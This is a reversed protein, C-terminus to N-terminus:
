VYDFGAADVSDLTIRLKSRLLDAHQYDPLDITYTCTHGVPLKSPDSTSQITIKREFGGRPISCQSTVLRLFRRLDTQSMTRIATTVHGPTPSSGFGAFQLQSIITLPDITDPGNLLFMLESASFRGFHVNLQEVSRFGDRIEKLQMQRSTVLRDQIYLEVYEHKNEDTVCINAGDKKLSGFDLFLTEEVHPMALINRLSHAETRDFMELDRLNPKLGLIFKFLSPAFRCPLTRADILTKLLMRGIARFTTADKCDPSPLYTPGSAPADDASACQFMNSKSDVIRLFFETFLDTVLGGNDQGKFDTYEVKIKRFLEPKSLSTIRGVVGEVIMDRRFKFQLPEGPRVLDRTGNIQQLHGTWEDLKAQGDMVERNEYLDQVFSVLCYPMALLQVATPRKEPDVQLMSLLMERLRPNATIPLSPPSSGDIIPLSKFHARYLMVALSWIDAACTAPGGLAVEPAVYSPNQSREATSAKVRSLPVDLSSLTQQAISFSTIVPTSQNSILITEGSLNRHVFQHRHMHSVGQLVQVFMQQIEFEKPPTPASALWSDLCGRPHHRLQIFGNGGEQFVAEVSDIAPHPCLLHRTLVENEFRELETGSLNWELLTCERNSLEALWTRHTDRSNLAKQLRPREYNSIKRKVVAGCRRVVAPISRNPDVTAPRSSAGSSKTDIDTTDSRKIDDAQTQLVNIRRVEAEISAQALRIREDSIDYYDRRIMLLELEYKMFAVREKAKILRENNGLAELTKRDVDEEDVPASNVDAILKEVSRRQDDIGAIASQTEKIDTRMREVTKKATNIMSVIHQIGVDLQSRVAKIDREEESTCRRKGSYGITATPSNAKHENGVKIADQFRIQSEELVANNHFWWTVFDSAELKREDFSRAAERVLFTNVESIAAQTMTIMRSFEVERQKQAGVMMKFIKLSTAAQDLTSTRLEALKAILDYKEKEDVFSGAYSRRRLMRLTVGAERYTINLVDVNAASVLKEYESRFSTSGATLEQLRKAVPYANRLTTLFDTIEANLAGFNVVTSPAPKKGTTCAECRDRDYKNVFTCLTCEWPEKLQDFILRKIPRVSDCVNCRSQDDKNEMTCNACSWGM